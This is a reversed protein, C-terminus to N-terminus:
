RSLSTHGTNLRGARIAVKSGEGVGKAALMAAASDIDALFRAYSIDLSGVRIAIRDAPQARLADLISM